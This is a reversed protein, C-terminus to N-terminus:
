PETRIGGATWSSSWTLEPRGPATCSLPAKSCPQNCTCLRGALESLDKASSMRMRSAPSASAIRSASRTPQRNKSVSSRRPLCMAFRRPIGTAPAAPTKNAALCRPRISATSGTKLPNTCCPYRREDSSALSIALRAPSAFSQRNSQMWV